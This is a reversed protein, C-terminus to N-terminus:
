QGVPAWGWPPTRLSLHLPPELDVTELLENVLELALHADSHGKPTCRGPIQGLRGCALPRAWVKEGECDGLSSGRRSSSSVLPSSETLRPFRHTAPHRPTATVFHPRERPWSGVQGRDACTSGKGAPGLAGGLGPPRPM